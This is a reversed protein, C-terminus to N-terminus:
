KWTNGKENDGNENLTPVLGFAAAKHLGAGSRSCCGAGPGGRPFHLLFVDRVKYWLEAQHM